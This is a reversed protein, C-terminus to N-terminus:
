LIVERLLKELGYDLVAILTGMIIAFIFVAFVLRWTEKRGPWTVQRLEAWASRFYGPTIKRSKSFFGGKPEIVHFEKTLANGLKSVSKKSASAAKRVRKPKDAKARSKAASDRMSSSPKLIKSSKKSSKSDKSKESNDEAV